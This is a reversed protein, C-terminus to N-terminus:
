FINPIVVTLVTRLLNSIVIEFLMYIGHHEENPSLGSEIGQLLKEDALYFHPLSAIMPMGSCKYLDITGKPPCEDEGRCYCQKINVDEGMDMEYRLVPIGNYKAKSRYTATLSRCISPEYAVIGAYSSFYDIQFM